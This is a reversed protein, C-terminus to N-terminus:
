TVKCYGVLLLLYLLPALALGPLPGLKSAIGGCIGATIAAIVGLVLVTEQWSSM